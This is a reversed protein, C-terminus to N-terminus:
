AIQIFRKQLNRPILAEQKKMVSKIAYNSFDLQFKIRNRTHSDPERHYSTKYLLFSIKILKAILRIIMIKGNLLYDIM